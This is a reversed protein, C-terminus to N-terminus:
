AIKDNIPLLYGNAQDKPIFLEIVNARGSLASANRRRIDADHGRLRGSQSMRTRGKGDTDQM